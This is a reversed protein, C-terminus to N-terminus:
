RKRCKCPRPWRRHPRRIGWNRKSAKTPMAPGAICRKWVPIVPFVTMVQGTFGAIAAHILPIDRRRATEALLLRDSINDLADIVLQIGDLLSWANEATLMASIGEVEVDSNIKAVRRVAAQM